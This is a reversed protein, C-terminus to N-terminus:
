IRVMSLREESYAVAVVFLEELVYIVVMAVSSRSGSGRSMWYTFIADECLILAFVVRQRVVRKGEEAVAVEVVMAFATHM